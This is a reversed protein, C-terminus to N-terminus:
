EQSADFRDWVRGLALVGLWGELALTTTAVIAGAGIALWNAAILRVVFGVGVFALTPPILAIILFALQGLIMILGLGTAEIGRQEGPKFWGPFVLMVATPVLSTVLNFAPLFFLAVCFVTPAADSVAPSLEDVAFGSAWILGLGALQVAAGSCAPGSLQGLVIQWGPVPAAKLWDGANLERRMVQATAQPGAFFVGVCAVFGIVGPLFAFESEARRLALAAILLLGGAVFGYRLMTRGGAQIWSKWVFAVPAWGTPRLKFIATKKRRPALTMRRDGGRRAALFAARKESLEISADEFAVDARMVWGYHLVMVALAPGLARAFDAVDGAFWPRVVFRFPALLWPAPGTSLLERLYAGLNGGSFLSVLDPRAPASQGWAILVSAVAAMSAIVLLRRRTNSMGRDMLRTLTFSAGLRHLQLTALVVWWGGAHLWAHGDRAFRGTLLTMLFALLLLGLQSKLLKFRILAPRSIPAPLLYGIEAETFALAARSAPMFWALLITFALLALAALNLALDPTIGLDVAPLPPRQRDFDGRFLFRYFYFYFYAGGLLAGIAYKPQRLRKLRFAIANRLSRTLLFWLAPNMRWSLAGQTESGQM